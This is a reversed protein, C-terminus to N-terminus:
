ITPKLLGAFGWIITSTIIGIIIYRELKKLIDDFSDIKFYAYDSVKGDEEYILNQFELINAIDNKENYNSKLIAKLMNNINTIYTNRAEKNLEYKFSMFKFEAILFMGLSLAAFNDYYASTNFFYIVLCSLPFILYGIFIYRKISSVISPEKFLSKNLEKIRKDM